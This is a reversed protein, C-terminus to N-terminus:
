LLDALRCVIAYGHAAAALAGLHLEQRSAALLDAPMFPVIGREFSERAAMDCCLHTMAGVIVLQEMGDLHEALSTEQYCSYSSKVLVPANGVALRPDLQALEDGPELLHRWFRAMMPHRGAWRTFVIPRESHEFRRVLLNIGDIAEVLSDIKAPSRAGTFLLQVDVVLLAAVSIDFPIERSNM